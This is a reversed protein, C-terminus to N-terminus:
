FSHVSGKLEFVKQSATEGSILSLKSPPVNLTKALLKLIAANAKGKDSSATVYAHLKGNKELLVNEGAEPHAVVNIKRVM